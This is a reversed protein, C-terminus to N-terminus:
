HEIEVGVWVWGMTGMSTFGINDITACRNIVTCVDVKELYLLASFTLGKAQSFM